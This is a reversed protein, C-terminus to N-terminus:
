PLDLSLKSSHVPRCSMIARIELAGESRKSYGWPDLQYVAPRSLTLGYLVLVTRDLASQGEKWRAPAYYLVEGDRWCIFCDEPVWRLLVLELVRSRLLWFSDLNVFRM